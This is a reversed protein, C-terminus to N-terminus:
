RGAAQRLNKITQGLFEHTDNIEDTYPVLKHTNYQQEAYRMNSLLKVTLLRLNTVPSVMESNICAKYSIKKIGDALEILASIPAGCGFYEDKTIPGTENAALVLSESHSFLEGAM